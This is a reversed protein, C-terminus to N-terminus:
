EYMHCIYTFASNNLLLASEPTLNLITWTDASCLVFYKKAYKAISKYIQSFIFGNIIIPWKQVKLTRVTLYANSDESLQFNIVWFLGMIFSTINVDIYSLYWSVWVIPDIKWLESFVGLDASSDRVILPGTIKFYLGM